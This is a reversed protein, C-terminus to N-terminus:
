FTVASHYKKLCLGLVFSNVFEFFFTSTYPKSTECDNIMANTLVRTTAGYRDFISKWNHIRIVRRCKCARETKNNLLDWAHTLIKAHIYRFWTHSASSAM